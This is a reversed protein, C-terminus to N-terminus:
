PGTIDTKHNDISPNSEPQEGMLKAPCEQLLSSNTTMNWLLFLDNDATQMLKKSNGSIKIQRLIHLQLIATM